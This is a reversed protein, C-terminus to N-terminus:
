RLTAHISQSDWFMGGTMYCDEMTIPAHVNDNGALMILIDGPFLALVPVEDTRPRWQEGYAVFDDRQQDNLSAVVPWLKVGSECRVWTGAGLSDKHWGSATYAQGLIEFGLCNEFDTVIHNGSICESAKGLSNTAYCRAEYALEDILKFRNQTLCHPCPRYTRSALNLLNRPPRDLSLRPNPDRLDAIISSFRM